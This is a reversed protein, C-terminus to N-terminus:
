EDDIDVGDLLQDWETDWVVDIDLLEKDEPDTYSVHARIDDVVDEKHCFITMDDASIVGADLFLQELEEIAKRFEERDM